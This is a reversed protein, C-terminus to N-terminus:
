EAAPATAVSLRNKLLTPVLRRGSGAVFRVKMEPTIHSPRSVNAPCVM